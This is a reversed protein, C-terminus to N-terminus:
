TMVEASARHQRAHQPSKATENLNARAALVFWAGVVTSIVLLMQLGRETISTAGWSQAVFLILLAVASVGYVAGLAGLVLNGVRSRIRVRLM